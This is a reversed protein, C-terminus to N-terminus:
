AVLAWNTDVESKSYRYVMTTVGSPDEPTMLYDDPDTDDQIYLSTFTDNRYQNWAPKVHQGVTFSM